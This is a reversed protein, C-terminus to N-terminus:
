EPPCYPFRPLNFRGRSAAPAGPAYLHLLQSWRSMGHRRRSAHSKSDPRTVLNKQSLALHDIRKEFTAPSKVEDLQAEISEVDEILLKATERIDNLYVLTDGTPKKV